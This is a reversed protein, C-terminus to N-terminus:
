RVLLAPQDDAAVAPLPSFIPSSCVLSSFATIRRRTYVVVLHYVPVCLCLVQLMTGSEIASRARSALRAGSNALLDTWQLLTSVVPHSTIPSPVTTVDLSGVNAVLLSTYEVLLGVMSTTLFDNSPIGTSIFRIAAADMMSVLLSVFSFGTSNVSEVSPLLEIFTADKARMAEFTSLMVGHLPHSGSLVTDTTVDDITAYGAVQTFLTIAAAANPFFLSANESIVRAATASLSSLSTVSGSAGAATSVVNLLTTLLAQFGATGEFGFETISIEFISLPLLQANVLKFVDTLMLMAGLRIQPTVSGSSSTSLPLLRAIIDASLTIVDAFPECLFPVSKQSQNISIIHEGALIRGLCTDLVDSSYSTGSDYKSPSRWWPSGTPGVINTGWIVALRLMDLAAQVHARSVSSSGSPAADSPSTDTVPGSVGLDRSPTAPVDSAKVPILIPDVWVAHSLAAIGSSTCLLQLTHVGAVSVEAAQMVRPSMGSSSGKRLAQSSWIVKGDGVVQFTTDSLTEFVDDNIAVTFRLTAFVGDLAYTISAVGDDPPHISICHSPRQGDVSVRRLTLLNSPSPPLSPSSERATASSLLVEQVNVSPLPVSDPFYGLDCGMGVTGKGPKSETPLVDCLFVPQSSSCPDVPTSTPVRGCSLLTISGNFGSSVVVPQLPYRLLQDPITLPPGRTSGNVSVCLTRAPLDLTFKVTAGSTVPPAVITPVPRGGIVATGDLCQVLIMNYGPPGSGRLQSSDRVAVGMALMGQAEAGFLVKMTWSYVNNGAIVADVVAISGGEPGATGRCTAVTWNENLQVEMSKYPDFRTDKAALAAQAQSWEKARTLEGSVKSADVLANGISRILSLEGATPAVDCTLLAHVARLVAGFSGSCWLM